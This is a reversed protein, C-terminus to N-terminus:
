QQNNNQLSKQQEQYKKQLIDFLIKSEEKNTKHTLLTSSCANKSFKMIYGFNDSNAQYRVDDIDCVFLNFCFAVTAQSKELNNFHTSIIEQKKQRLANCIQTCNDYKYKTNWQPLVISAFNNFLNATIEINPLMLDANNNNIKFLNPKSKQIYRVAKQLAIDKCKKFISNDWKPKTRTKTKKFAQRQQKLKSLFQSNYTIEQAQLAFILFLIFLKM